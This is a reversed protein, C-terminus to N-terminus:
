RSPHSAEAELGARGAGGPAPPAPFKEALRAELGSMWAARERPGLRRLKSLVHCEAEMGCKGLVLRTWFADILSASEGEELDSTAFVLARKGALLPKWDKNSFEEGELDYGVGQRLVRDVWGKLLAPPGGWWDPHFILVAEAAELDRTHAQVLPDLSLGRALEPANLVPDFGEEYLDHFLVEHGAELLLKRARAAMAHNFSAPRPNCLLELILM